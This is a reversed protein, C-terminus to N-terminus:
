LHGDRWGHTSPPATSIHAICRTRSSPAIKGARSHLGFGTSSTSPRSKANPWPLPLVARSSRWQCHAGVRRPARGTASSSLEISRVRACSASNSHPKSQDREHLHAPCVRRHNYVIDPEAVGELRHDLTDKLIFQHEQILHRRPAPVRSAVAMKVIAEDPYPQMGFRVGFLASAWSFLNMMGNRTGLRALFSNLSDDPGPDNIWLVLPEIPPTWSSM